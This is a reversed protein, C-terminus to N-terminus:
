MLRTATLPSTSGRHAGRDMRSKGLASDIRSVGESFGLSDDTAVGSSQASPGSTVVPHVSALRSVIWRQDADVPFEVALSLRKREEVQDLKAEERGPPLRDRQRRDALREVEGGSLKASVTRQEVEPELSAPAIQEDLM